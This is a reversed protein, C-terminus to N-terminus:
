YVEISTKDQKKAPNGMYFGGEETSKTVLAGMAILTKPAITTYDRITANVGLWSNEGVDCHGSLVIHSTFFVNDRIVSHHGIHNGSWLVVNNGIEVFPQITNDELIFCNEGIRQTLVTAKSSVYSICKYGKDKVDKYIRERITNMKVGTMPAFFDYESPPYKNEIDEFELVPLNEFTECDKFQKNVVFAEITYKNNYNEDNEIYYKALQATDKTGFILLKRKM